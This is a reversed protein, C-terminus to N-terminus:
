KIAECWKMAVIKHGSSYTHQVAGLAAMIACWYLKKSYAEQHFRKVATHPIMPIFGKRRSQLKHQCRTRQQQAHNLCYTPRPVFLGKESGYPYTIRICVSKGPPQARFGKITQGRTRPARLMKSFLCFCGRICSVLTPPSRWFTARRPEQPALDLPNQLQALFGNCKLLCLM